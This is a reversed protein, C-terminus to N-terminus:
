RIVTCGVGQACLGSQFRRTNTVRTDIVLLGSMYMAVKETPGMRLRRPADCIRKILYRITYVIWVHLMSAHMCCSVLPFRVICSTVTVDGVTDSWCGGYDHAETCREVVNKVCEYGGETNRCANRAPGGRDCLTPYEECENLDVCQGDGSAEGEMKYGPDCGCEFGPEAEIEKCQTRHESAASCVARM